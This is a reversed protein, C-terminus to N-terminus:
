VRKMRVARKFATCVLRVTHGLDVRAHRVRLDLGRKASWELRGFVLAENYPAIELTGLKM